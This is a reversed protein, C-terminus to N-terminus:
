FSNGGFSFPSCASLSDCDVLVFGALVESPILDLVPFGLSIFQLLSLTSWDSLSFSLPHGTM